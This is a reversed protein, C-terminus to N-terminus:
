HRERRVYIAGDKVERRNMEDFTALLEINKVLLTGM